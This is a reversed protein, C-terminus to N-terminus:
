TPRGERVASMTRAVAGELDGRIEHEWVVVPTWGAEVLAAEAKADRAANAAFKEDWFDRHAKPRPLDCTPCRHWFCGHVFVAVRSRTFVIDPRGPLRASVRYGTAGAQRLARRFRIEAGSVSRNAQM